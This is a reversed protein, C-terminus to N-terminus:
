KEWTVTLPGLDPDQGVAVSQSPKGDLRDGIEKLASVDGEAAKEILKRALRDLHRGGEEADRKIALMIADRWIKDSKPGVAKHPAAM